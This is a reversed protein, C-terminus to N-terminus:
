IQRRRRRSRYVLGLGPLVLALTAPEPVVYELHFHFPELFGQPAPVGNPVDQGMEELNRLIEYPFSAALDLQNTGNGKVVVNLGSAGLVHNPVPISNFVASASLLSFGRFPETLTYHSHLNCYRNQLATPLRRGDVVLTGAM